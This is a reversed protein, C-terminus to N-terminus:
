LEDEKKYAGIALAAIAAIGAITIFVGLIHNFTIGIALTDNLTTYQATHTEETSNVQTTTDNDYTYTISISDTSHLQIPSIIIITGLLILFSGGIFGLSIDLKHGLLILIISIIFISLFFELIM